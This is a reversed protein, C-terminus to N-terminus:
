IDFKIVFTMDNTKSKAIPQGLKAVAILETADNYLGVATVYPKFESGTINDKPLGGSYSLSGSVTTETKCASPNSSFLLESSKVRCYNTFTFIPYTSKWSATYSSSVKFWNVIDNNTFILTGHKYNIDGIAISSTISAPLDTVASGSFTIFGEGSDKLTRRDAESTGFVASLEFTSPKIYSGVIEKPFSFISSSSTLVRSGSFLSSELYHEYSGSVLVSSSVNFNNYYLHNISRYFLSENYNVDSPYNLEGTNELGTNITIGNETFSSSSFSYAKNANYVSIFSDASNLKKFASM